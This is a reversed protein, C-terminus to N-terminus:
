PRARHGAPVHPVLGGNPVQQLWGIAGHKPRCHRMQGQTLVDIM